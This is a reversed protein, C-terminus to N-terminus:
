SIEEFLDPFIVFNNDIKEFFDNDGEPYFNETITVIEGSIRNSLAGLDGKHEYADIAEELSMEEERCVITLWDAKFDECILAKFERLVTM